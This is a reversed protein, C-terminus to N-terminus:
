PPDLHLLKSTISSVTISERRLLKSYHLGCANCLTRAGGPGRRWEPTVSTHCYHCQQGVMSRKSRRKYKPKRHMSVLTDLIDKATLSVMDLM